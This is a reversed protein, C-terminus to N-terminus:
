QACKNRAIELWVTTPLANKPIRFIGAIREIKYLFM